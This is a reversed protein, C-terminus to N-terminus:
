FHFKSLDTNNTIEMIGAFNIGLSSKNTFVTALFAIVFGLVTGVLNNTGRDKETSNPKVFYLAQSTTCSILVRGATAWDTFVAESTTHFAV